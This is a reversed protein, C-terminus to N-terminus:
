KLLINLKLTINISVIIEVLESTLYLSSIFKRFFFLVLFIKSSFIEKLLTCWYKLKLFNNFLFGM